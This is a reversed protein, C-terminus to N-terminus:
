APRVLVCGRKLYTDENGSDQDSHIVIHMDDTYSQGLDVTFWADGNFVNPGTGGNNDGAQASFNRVYESTYSNGSRSFCTYRNGMFGGPNNGGAVHTPQTGAVSPCSNGDNNSIATYYTFIHQGDGAGSNNRMITLGDGVGSSINLFNRGNVGDNSYYNYLNMRMKVYRYTIGRNSFTAHRYDSGSVNRFFGWTSNYDFNGTPTTDGQDNLNQGTLAGANSFFVPAGGGWNGILIYYPHSNIPVFYRRTTGDINMYYNGDAAAGADMLEQVNAAAKDPTSGNNGGASARVIQLWSSGNWVEVQLLESNFRIMGTFPSSPRQATTGVPLKFHSLPHLNCAGEVVMSEGDDFNIEFNNM